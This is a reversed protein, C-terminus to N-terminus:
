RWRRSQLAVVALIVLWVSALLFFSVDGTDIVGRSFDSLREDISVAYLARGIAAPARHAIADATVIRALLLTFLAGLFALTQSSTLASFLAGVALYMIGALLLGLYGSAIPGYDPDAFYELTLAFAATPLLMLVLFAVAAVYKGAVILWDSVPSTMLPEITGARYEDAILRMSIAPAIFLLLWGSLGFFPRLSAPEAPALVLFGFVVGSLALYLATVVWGLPTRYYALLERSAIAGLQTM